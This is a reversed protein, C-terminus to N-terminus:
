LFLSKKPIMYMLFCSNIKESFKIKKHFLKISNAVLATSLWYQQMRRLYYPIMKVYKKKIIKKFSIFCRQKELIEFFIFFVPIKSYRAIQLFVKLFITEFKEKKGHKMMKNLFRGYFVSNYFSYNLNRNM